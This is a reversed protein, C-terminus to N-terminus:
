VKMGSPDPGNTTRGPCPQQLKGSVKIVPYPFVLLRRFPGYELCVRRNDLLLATEGQYDPDIVRGLM